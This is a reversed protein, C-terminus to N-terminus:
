AETPHWDEFGKNFPSIDDFYSKYFDAAERSCIITTNETRPNTNVNASSLVAATFTQGYALIVKSHNRFVGCRGGTRKAIRCLDQTCMAYSARAIEGIYFDIKKILGKEVWSGIEQVDEIGFCWSSILCYDLPQQRLIHKLFSLQDVDGGSIVLYINDPELHWTMTNLLNRESYFRRKEFQKQARLTHVRMPTNMHKPEETSTKEKKAPKPDEVPTSGTLILEPEPAAMLEDFDEFEDIDDLNDINDFDDNYDPM